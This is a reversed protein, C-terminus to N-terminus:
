WPCSGGLKIAAVPQTALAWIVGGTSDTPSTLASARWDVEYLSGDLLSAFTRWRGGQEMGDLAWALSTVEIGEGTILQSTLPCPEMEHALTGHLLHM